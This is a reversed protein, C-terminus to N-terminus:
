RMSKASAAMPGVGVPHHWRLRPPWHRRFYAHRGTWRAVDELVAVGFLYMHQGDRVPRRCVRFSPDFAESGGDFGFIPACLGDLVSDDNVKVGIPATGPDSSSARISASTSTGPIRARQGLIIFARHLKSDHLQIRRRFTEEHHAIAVIFPTNGDRHARGLVDHAAGHPLSEQDTAAQEQETQHRRSDHRRPQCLREAFQGLSGLGHGVAFQPHLDGLGRHSLDPLQLPREVLHGAPQCSQLGFTLLPSASFVEGLQAIKGSPKSM